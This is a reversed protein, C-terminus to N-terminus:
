VVTLGRQGLEVSFLNALQRTYPPVPQRLSCKTRVRHGRIFSHYILSSVSSILLRKLFKQRDRNWVSFLSESLFQRFIELGNSKRGFNGSLHKKPQIILAWLDQRLFLAVNIKQSCM